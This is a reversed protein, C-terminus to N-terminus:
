FIILNDSLWFMISVYYFGHKKMFDVSREKSLISYKLFYTTKFTSIQVLFM